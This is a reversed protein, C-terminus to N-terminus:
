VTPIPGGAALLRGPSSSISITLQQVEIGVYNICHEDSRSDFVGCYTCQQSYRKSSIRGSISLHFHSALSTADGFQVVISELAVRKM